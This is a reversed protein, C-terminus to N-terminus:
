QDHRLNGQSAKVYFDLPCSRFRAHVLLRQGCDSASQLPDHAFRAPIDPDTVYPRNGARDIPAPESALGVEEVFRRDRM